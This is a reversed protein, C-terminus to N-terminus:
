NETALIALLIPKLAINYV